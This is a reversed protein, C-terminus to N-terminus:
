KDPTMIIEFEFVVSSLSGKLKDGDPALTVTVDYDRTYKFVLKNGDRKVEYAPSPNNEITLVVMLKGDQNKFEAKGTNDGPADPVDFNWKGVPNTPTQAQVVADVIRGVVRKEPQNELTQEVEQGFAQTLGLALVVVVLSVRTM